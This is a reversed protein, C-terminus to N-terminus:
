FINFFPGRVGFFMGAEGHPRFRLGLEQQWRGAIAKAQEGERGADDLFVACRQSLRPAFYPGAPYRALAIEPRYAPPGDVLLLDVAQIGALAPGLM